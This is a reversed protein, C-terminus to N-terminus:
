RRETKVTNGRCQPLSPSEAHFFPPTIPRSAGHSPREAFSELLWAKLCSFINLLAFREVLGPGKRHPADFLAEFIEIYNPRLDSPEALLFSPRLITKGCFQLKKAPVGAPNGDGFKFRLSSTHRVQLQEDQCLNQLHSNVFKKGAIKARFNFVKPGLIANLERAALNRRALLCSRV